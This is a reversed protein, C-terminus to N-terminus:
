TQLCSGGAAPEFNAQKSKLNNEMKKIKMSKREL